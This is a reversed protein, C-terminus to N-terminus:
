SLDDELGFLASEDDASINWFEASTDITSNLQHNQHHHADQSNRCHQQVQDVRRQSSGESIQLLNLESSQLFSTLHHHVLYVEKDKETIEKDKLSLKEQLMKIEEDSSQQMAVFSDQLTLLKHNLKGIAQQYTVITQQLHTKITIHEFERHEALGVTEQLQTITKRLETIM